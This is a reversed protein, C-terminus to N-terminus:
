QFFSKEGKQLMKKLNKKSMQFFLEVKAGVLQITDANHGDSLALFLRKAMSVIRACIRVHDTM